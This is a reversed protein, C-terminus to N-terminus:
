RLCSTNGKQSVYAVAAQIIIPDEQLLGIATNCRGCLLAVVAGTEHNHDVCLPRDWDHARFCLACASNQQDLLRTYEALSIGYSTKLMHERRANRCRWRIDGTKGGRSSVIVSDPGCESCNGTRLAIDKTILMHHGPRLHGKIYRAHQGAVRNSKASTKTALPTASGCGCWCLGSANPLASVSTVALTMQSM